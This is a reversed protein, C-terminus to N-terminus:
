TSFPFSGQGGNCYSSKLTFFEKNKRPGYRELDRLCEKNNKCLDRIIEETFPIRYGNWLCGIAYGYDKERVAKRSDEIAERFEKSKEILERGKERNGFYWEIKGARLYDEQELYEDRVRPLDERPTLKLYAEFGHRDRRLNEKAKELYETNKYLEFLYYYVRGANGYRGLSEYHKVIDEMRERHVPTKPKSFCLALNVDIAVITNIFPRAGHGRDLKEYLKKELVTQYRWHEYELEKRNCGLEKIIKDTEYPIIKKTTIGNVYNIYEDRVKQTMNKRSTSQSPVDGFSKGSFPWGFSLIGLMATIGAALSTKKMTKVNLFMEGDIGM